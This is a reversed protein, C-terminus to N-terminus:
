FNKSLNLLYNGYSNQGRQSAIKEIDNNNIWNKQFAVEEPCGIKLGQRHEIIQVYSSAEHLSDFTGTDLWTMGEKMIEVSLLNDKLYSLNLDTIELEGRKSPKLEKSRESATQDYFYLGTVAFNSIFEIPKEVIDEINKNKDLKIVGYREPDKVPYGFISAGINKKSVDTLRKSFNLGHFLNDGLILASPAGNLFSEAILLAEAIGKPQNQKEYELSIGFDKGNGLLSKFINQDNPTTIILIERIDAMMLTSIPYFIMPKDYIPLLQKSVAKTLPYLRTGKGGALIIGKRQIEDM